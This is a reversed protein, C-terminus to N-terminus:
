ANGQLPNQLNVNGTQEQRKQKEQEKKLMAETIIPIEKDTTQKIAAQIMKLIEIPREEVYGESGSVSGIAFLEKKDTVIFMMTGMVNMDTGMMDSELYEKVIGAVDVFTSIVEGSQILASSGKLEQATGAVLWRIDDYRVIDKKNGRGFILEAKRNDFAAGPRMIIPIMLAAVGLLTLAISLAVLGDGNIGNRQYDEWTIGVTFLGFGGIIIFALVMYLRRPSFVLREGRKQFFAGDIPITRSAGIRVFVRYILTVLMAIIAPIGAFIGCLIGVVLLATDIGGESDTPFMLYGIIGCSVTVMVAAIIETSHRKFLEM